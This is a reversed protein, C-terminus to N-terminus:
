APAPRRGLLSILAEGVVWLALLLLVWGVVLVVESAGPDTLQLWLAALTMGMMFLMPVGVLVQLVRPKGTRALWFFLGLLTLGACSTAPGTCATGLARGM